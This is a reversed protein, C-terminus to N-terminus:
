ADVTKVLTAAEVIMKAFFDPDPRVIKSSMSTQAARTISDRGIEDSNLALNEQMYRVAEKCALRYGNIVTTPHLKHKVLEDAAKLLEAVTIVVTTTGVEEDHLQGLEVPVKTAPHQVKMQKLITTGNNTFIVGGVDDVLM